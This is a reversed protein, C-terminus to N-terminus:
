EGVDNEAERIKELYQRRVRWSGKLMKWCRAPSYRLLYGLLVGPRFLLSDYLQIIERYFQAVSMHHPRISVHALDWKTFEDRALILEDACALGTGPL